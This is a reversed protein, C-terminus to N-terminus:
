FRMKKKIRATKNAYRRLIIENTSEKDRLAGNNYSGPCQKAHKLSSVNAKTAFLIEPLMQPKHKLNCKIPPLKRPTSATPQKGTAALWGRAHVQQEIQKLAEISHHECKLKKHLSAQRQYLEELKRLYEKKSLELQRKAERSTPRPLVDLSLSALM